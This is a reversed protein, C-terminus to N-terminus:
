AQSTIGLNNERTNATNIQGTICLSLAPWTLIQSGTYTCYLRCTVPRLKAGSFMQPDQSANAFLLCGAFITTQSAARSQIDSITFTCPLQSEQCVKPM